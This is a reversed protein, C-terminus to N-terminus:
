QLDFYRAEISQVNSSQIDVSSFTLRSFMSLSLTSRSCASNCFTSFCQVYFLQIYFVVQRLGVWSFTIFACPLVRKNRTTTLWGLFIVAILVLCGIMQYVSWFCSEQHFLSLIAYMIWFCLIQTPSSRIEVGSDLVMRRSPQWYVSNGNGWASLSPPLHEPYLPGSGLEM